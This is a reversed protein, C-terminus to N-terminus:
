GCVQPLDLVKRLQGNSSCTTFTKVSRHQWRVRPEYRRPWPVGLIVDYMDDLGLVIFDDDYQEDKLTYHIEVVHQEATISAAKELHVTMRAPPIEREVFNFSGIELSQRHVFNNREGCDVKSRLSMNKTVGLTLTIFSEEDGPASVCLSQSDPDVKTLINAFGSLTLSDNPRTAGLSM